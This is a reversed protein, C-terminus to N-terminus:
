STAELKLRPDRVLPMVTDWWCHITKSFALSSNHEQFARVTETSLIQLIQGGQYSFPSVKRATVVTKRLEWYRWRDPLRVCVCVCACVCM